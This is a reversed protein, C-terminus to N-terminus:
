IGVRQIMIWNQAGSAVLADATTAIARLDITQGAVLDYLTAGTQLGPASTYARESQRYSQVGNIYTHAYMTRAATVNYLGSTVLYKGAAPVTFVGTAGNMAGHTDFVKNNWTVTTFGTGIVQGSSQSYACAITESAAIQTPGSIRSIGINGTSVTLSTDSRISITDGAVCGPILTAGSSAYTAASATALSAFFSGNKFIVLTGLASMRGSASVIYDGAVPVTFINTSWSGHTDKTTSFTINTVNATVAQSSQTGAFSLVRTDADSSMQVGSSWGTIPVKAEATVYDGSAFVFPASASTASKQGTTGSQYGTVVTSSAVICEVNLQYNLLASVDFANGVFSGNASGGATMKSSDITFGSPLNFTLQTNNPAGSLTAQWRVEMSDGVRRYRGTYTTNVTWTGTPTFPIWDTDASGYLKPNPGVSIRDFQMTYANPNATSLHLCLRYSSSTSNTQFEFPNKQSPLSHLPLQYASPQIRTGNTIDYLWINVEKDVYTGSAIAYELLGQLVGALDARDCTFDYSVGEGMVQAAPKTLLFAGTGRLPSSTTRTWTITPTGGTGDLPVLPRSTHTGSQTGTTNVDAGGLTASVRYTTGSPIASIYYTTGATLGTPLAGTTTHAIPMGVYMGTTSAVTFVAPSAITVTAIQTDNYTVWGSTDSEAKGNTIYNIGGEGSGSGSGSALTWRNGVTDYIFIFAANNPMTVNANTGTLIRQNATVGIDENNITVTNGTKNEIVLMQGANGVQIASLSALSVNQLRILGQAGFSTLTANSGTTTTDSGPTFSIQKNTMVQTTSEGVLVTNGDPFALVRSTSSSPTLTTTTGTTASATSFAFAKTRDTPDVISFEDAYVTGISGLRSTVEPNFVQGNSFYARAFGGNDLRKMIIIIEQNDSAPTPITASVVPTVNGGAAERDVVVYLINSAPVAIPSNSVNISYQKASGLRTNQVDFVIDASFNLQSGSWTVVNNSRLLDVSRLKNRSQISEQAYLETSQGSVLRTSDSGVIVNTGDRRAIIVANLPVTSLQGVTVSLTGGGTANNPIVYAVDLDNTFAIPSSATSITNDSYALGAREVFMNATFTLQNSAWSVTGGGIIKAPVRGTIPRWSSATSSWRYEIETDLTLRVDGDANGSVPLAAFNAVPAKWSINSAVAGINSDLTSIADTLSQGDTVYLNSSYQPSDDANDTAGIFTLTQDSTGAYLSKSEGPLLLMSHAGVVVGAVTNRAIIVTNIGLPVSAIDAVTVTLNSAGGATRNVTVYAVEDVATFNVTQALITNRSNALGAIQVYADADWTVSSSAGYVGQEIRYGITYNYSPSWTAGNDISNTINGVDPQPQYIEARMGTQPAQYVFWYTGPALVPNSSFPFEFDSMTNPISLTPISDSSYLVTTEDPNGAVDPVINVVNTGLTATDRRLRMRFSYIPTPSAVTLSWGTYLTGYGIEGILTNSANAKIETPTGGGGGASWNGGEILKLTNNQEIILPSVGPGPTAGVLIISDDWVYVENGSLRTAIVFINEDVPLTSINSVLITPTTTNNRDVSVYAVQNVLLSIGPASSPLSVTANGTSGPLVLTLTSPGPTFTIEQASGNTTNNISTINASPLYRIVKDQAKDAMMATLKSVRATINENVVGNYNAMGDLTNYSTPVSYSPATESLSNMGLYQRINDAATGGIDIIQGQILQTVAGETRVILRALTATGSTETAAAASVPITFTTASRVSVEYQGDYNTTGDIIINDDTKFGHNASEEQFGYPTTRASTTVTAYHAAGSEDAFPGGSINIYFINATEVEVKYTGNFNTTGTITVRDGDALGHATATVKATSGDHESIAISLNTTVINSVNEITDSRLALWHFNGGVNGIAADDRDSVIVDGSQYVGKDYRGKEVGTSGLYASSLRVSRAGAATTVSGGLNVADYFEEVRLYKDITDAAKKVYDGQSLNAFLGVAGGVTNIYPQGNTWSVSEDTSNFPLNREMALYMVQEDDLQASGQRVIYTRPDSTMKIQIDETWTLLGPTGTNHVWQGKSKFATAVADYFNTIISFSSTDDYWYTTGGLERLKSMVADMWEKLSLINKDAGQFPNVGGATMTTPPESREYGASPLSRWGYTSFPNPNIGGTGLRFMMDRADEISTIVVPGVTIKAVPVTNAPFSGTSVNVEVKLVSETNIDQTFEGGAGGDKDPDWFARTDVSTNFTSFTLYVYNVANKRLEPVIPAAQPHGEQLGHYFSGASSGPYFTISDAVRISCSQTGIANGPDIVDFGKLIYPKTDGVMGKLFYKWDGAAYSDISLLDPLDLREASSVLLRGLVSM